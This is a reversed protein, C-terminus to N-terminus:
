SGVWRRAGDPGEILAYVVGNVWIMQGREFPQAQITVGREQATAWGMRERLAPETRWVKGFGRVPQQRNAPAVLAPDSEAEGERFTDEFVLWSGDNLFAYIRAEDERWVMFGQEFPQVAASVQTAQAQTAWGLAQQADRNSQWVGSFVSAPVFLGTPPEGGPSAPTAAIPTNSATPTAAGDPEEGTLEIAVWAMAAPDLAWFEGAYSGVFLRHGGEDLPPSVALSWLTNTYARGALRADEWAEIRAGDAAVRWLGASGLVYAGGDPAPLVARLMATDAQGLAVKGWRQGGDASRELTRGDVGIRAPLQAPSAAALLALRAGPTIENTATLALTWTAAGDTSRHLSVGAEWPDIRQYHAYALLTSDVEYDPSVILDHIRLHALGQWVPAWTDGRDTSRFVGFGLAERDYGGAFLTADEAFHPSIAVTAAGQGELLLGDRLHVWSAGDDMTRYLANGGSVVFLTRDGRYAPSVIIQNVPQAPLTAPQNPPGGPPAGQESLVTLLNGRGGLLLGREVDHAFLCFGAPLRGVPQLTALDYVWGAAYAQGTNGNIFPPAIGDWWQLLQGATDFVLLNNFAVYRSFLQHRYIRGEVVPQLTHNSGCTPQIMPIAAPNSVLELTTADYFRPPRVVGPGGATAITQVDLALLNQAAFLWAHEVRQGGVCDLCAQGSIEPFLDRLDRGEGADMLYVSSAVALVEDRFPNYLPIGPRPLERVFTLREGDWQQIRPPDAAYPSSLRRGVFLRNNAADFSLHTFGPITMVVALTETDIVAIAPEDMYFRDAPAVFLRRHAPDLTLEGSVPLTALPQYNQTDLVHLRGGSDTVYLRQAAADMRLDVLREDPGALAVEALLVPLPGSVAAPAPPAPMEAEAGAPLPSPPQATPTAALQAVEAALRANETALAAITAEADPNPAPQENCAALLWLLLLAPILPHLKHPRTMTATKPSYRGSRNLQAGDVNVTPM